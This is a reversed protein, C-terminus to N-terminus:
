AFSVRENMRRANRGGYEATEGTRRLLDEEAACESQRLGESREKAGSLRPDGQDSAQRPRRPGGGVEWQPRRVIVTREAAEGADSLNQKVVM